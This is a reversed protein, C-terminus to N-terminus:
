RVCDCAAVFRDVDAQQTPWWGIRSLADLTKTSVLHEGANAGHAIDLFTPGLDPPIAPVDTAHSTRTSSRPHYLLM